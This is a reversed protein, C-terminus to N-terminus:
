SRPEADISFRLEGSRAFPQPHVARDPFSGADSAASAPVTQRGPLRKVYRDLEQPLNAGGAEAIKRWKKKSMRAVSIGYDYVMLGGLYASGILLATGIISLALPAGAVITEERFKHVRLGLNVAFLLAVVLNLIMHYLGIKWAPKEKKIGSWDVVGTPVALLSAILGFAIAYFSLRVMANGNWRSLLDFILASPWMAMPVHVLIPHLPHKLWKGKLFDLLWKM